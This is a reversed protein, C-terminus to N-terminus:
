LQVPTTSKALWRPQGCTAQISHLSCCPDCIQAVAPETSLVIRDQHRSPTRHQVMAAVLLLVAKTSALIGAVTTSCVQLRVGDDAAGLQQQAQLYLVNPPAHGCSAQTRITKYTVIDYGLRCALTTWRSDLLPGAPVGIPSAVKHGLFDIWSDPPPFHREPVPGDFCPGKAINDAWSAKIDYICSSMIGPAEFRCTFSSESVQLRQDSRHLPCKVDRSERWEKPAAPRASLSVGEFHQSLM